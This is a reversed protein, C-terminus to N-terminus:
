KCDYWHPLCLENRYCWIVDSSATTCVGHLSTFLQFPASYRNWRYRACTYANSRALIFSSQLINNAFAYSIKNGLFGHHVVSCFPFVTKRSAHMIYSSYQEFCHIVYIEDSTNMM